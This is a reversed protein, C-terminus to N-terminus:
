RGPRHGLYFLIIMGSRLLLAPANALCSQHYHPCKPLHSSLSIVAISYVDYQEVDLGTRLPLAAVSITLFSASLLAAIALYHALEGAVFYM